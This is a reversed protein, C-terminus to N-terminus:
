SISVLDVVFVLTANGPVVPPSGEAGYGLAPPIVLVRRGGPAMGEIGLAFGPVVQSLPFTVPTDGEKWSADFATGDYLTGSYRVNVTDSAKAPAGKGVVVDQTTLENPPTGTGAQGSSQATLDTPKGSLPPIGAVTAGPGAPTPAVTPIAAETTPAETQAATPLASGPAAATSAGSGCGALSLLAVVSAALLTRKM